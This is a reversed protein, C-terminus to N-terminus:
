NVEKLIAVDKVKFCKREKIDDKQQNKAIRVAIISKEWSSGMILKITWDLFIPTLYESMEKLM